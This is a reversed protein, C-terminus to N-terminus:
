IMACRYLFHPEVLLGGGAIAYIERPHLKEVSTQWQARPSTQQREFEDYSDLFPNKFVYTPSGIQNNISVM